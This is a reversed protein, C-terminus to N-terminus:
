KYLNSVWTELFDLSQCVKAFWNTAHNSKICYRLERCFISGQSPLMEDDELLFLPWQRQGSKSQMLYKFSLPWWSQKMVLNKLTESLHFHVLKFMNLFNGHELYCPTVLFRLHSYNSQSYQPFCARSFSMTRHSCYPHVCMSYSLTIYKLM